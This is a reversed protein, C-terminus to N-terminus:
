GSNFRNHMTGQRHHGSLSEALDSLSADIKAAIFSEPSRVRGNWIVGRCLVRSTFGESWHLADGDSILAHQADGDSYVAALM